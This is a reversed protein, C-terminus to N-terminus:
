QGFQLLDGPRGELAAATKREWSLLPRRGVVDAGARTDIVTGEVNDAQYFQYVQEFVPIAGSALQIARFGLEDTAPGVQTATPM